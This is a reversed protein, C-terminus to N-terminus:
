PVSIRHRPGPQRRHRNPLWNPCRSPAVHRRTRPSLTYLCLWCQGLIYHAIIKYRGDMSSKIAPTGGSGLLFVLPRIGPAHRVGGPARPVSVPLRRRGRVGAGANGRDDARWARGGPRGPASPGARALHGPADGRCAGPRAERHARGHASGPRLCACGTRGVGCRVGRGRAIRRFILSTLPGPASARVVCHVGPCVVGRMRWRRLLGACGLGPYAACRGSREFRGRAPLVWTGGLAGARGCRWAGGGPPARRVWLAVSGHGWMGWTTLGGRRVSGPARAGSRAGRARRGISRVGGPAWSCRRASEQTIPDPHDPRPSRASRDAAPAELARM